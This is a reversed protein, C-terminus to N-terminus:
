FRLRDWAFGPVLKLAWALLRWRKTVYVRRRRRRIARWIQEAAVDPGAIWDPKRDVKAMATDVLGLQVDTVMIGRRHSVASQRLGEMYNSAFAKSANYAPAGGIGRLAALSSLGVLHGSAQRRFHRMFFGAAAAFGRVNIAITEDEPGWALDENPYGVGASLIALDCGGLAEVLQELDELANPLEAVDSCRTLVGLEGELERLLEARRATVGVLYGERVLVKALSRGIGSSGGVIIARGRVDTM